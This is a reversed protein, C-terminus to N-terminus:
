THWSTPAGAKRPSLAGHPREGEALGAVGDGAEEAADAVHGIGCLHAGGDGSERRVDRWSSDQDDVAPNARVPPEVIETRVGWVDRAIVFHSDYAERDAPAIAVDGLQLHVVEDWGVVVGIVEHLRM